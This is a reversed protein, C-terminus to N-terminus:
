KRNLVVLYDSYRVLDTYQFTILCYPIYIINFLYGLLRRWIRSYFGKKKWEDKTIDYSDDRSESILSGLKWCDKIFHIETINFNFRSVLQNMALPDIWCTHEPNILYSRKFSVYHFEDAYFPNPTSIIVVGKRTLLKDLNKFFGEFNTLHEVLDGAIIVDYKKKINLERTVDGCIINFGKRQLKKVDSELYDVGLLERAVGKIKSHLWDDKNYFTEDHCVCGMDLVKKGRCMEEIFKGKDVTSSARVKDAFTFKNM